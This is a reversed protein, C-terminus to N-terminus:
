FPLQQQRNGAPNQILSMTIKHQFQQYTFINYLRAIKYIPTLMLSFGLFLGGIDFHGRLLVTISRQNLMEM